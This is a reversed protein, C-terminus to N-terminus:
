YKSMEDALKEIIVEEFNSEFESLMAEIKPLVEETVNGEVNLLSGITVNNEVSKNGAGLELAKTDVLSSLSVPSSGISTPVIGMGAMLEQATKLNNILEERLIDGMAYLGDGTDNLWDSMLTSLEIVEDEITVFGDVLAKNVMDAINEASLIEELEEDLKEM